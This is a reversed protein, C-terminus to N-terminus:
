VKEEIQNKEIRKGREMLIDRENDGLQNNKARISEKLRCYNQEENIM